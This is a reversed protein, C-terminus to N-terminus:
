KPLDIKTSSSFLRELHRGIGHRVNYGCMDFGIVGRAELLRANVAGSMLALAPSRRHEVDVFTYGLYFVTGLRAEDPFRSRYLTPNIWPIAGLDSTLTTMAIVRGDEEVVTYKELREDIMEQRFEEANLVHRAAAEVLLASWADVYRPYLDAIVEDTLKRQM